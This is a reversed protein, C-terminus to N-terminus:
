CPFFGMYIGNVPPINSLLAFGMGQPIHMIAITVGAILDGIFHERFNYAPLWSLVPVRATIASTLCGRSFNCSKALKTQIAEKLWVDTEREHFLACQSQNVHSARSASQNARIVYTGYEGPLTTTLSVRKVVANGQVRKSLRHANPSSFQVPPLSPIGALAQTGMSADPTHGPDFHYNQNRQAVNLTPADRVTRGVSIRSDPVLVSAAAHWDHPYPSWAREFPWGPDVMITM